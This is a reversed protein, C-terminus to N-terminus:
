VLVTVVKLTVGQLDNGLRREQLSGNLGKESDWTALQLVSCGSDSAPM